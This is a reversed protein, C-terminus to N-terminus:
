FLNLERRKEKGFKLFIKLIEQHSKPNKTQKQKYKNTEM